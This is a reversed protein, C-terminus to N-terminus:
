TPPIVFEDKGIITYYYNYKGCNAAVIAPDVEMIELEENYGDAVLLDNYRIADDEQEFVQVTKIRDKNTVAYVGGTNKDTLIFM